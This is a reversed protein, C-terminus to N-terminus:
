GNHNLNFVISRDIDSQIRNFNKYDFGLAGLIYNALEDKFNGSSQPSNLKRNISSTFLDVAQIFFNNKSSVADFNELYLGTINQAKIREKLNELKLIDSGAEEDDIWVQLTRPLPARKTENEHLIGKSILHYTLDTIPISINQFGTNQVMIVKFGITPNLSLFKRFFDKYAQLRHRSCKTFHFEFNINKQKTWESLDRSIHLTSLGGDIIWVSGVILFNETKGAEDIFVSYVPLGVPKDELVENRKEAQLVGRYQKVTDDAQFLKYENQIKARVRILSNYCTLKKFQDLTIYQGNFSNSEFTRWYYWVLEIDSNRTIGYTNLIFAVKDRKTILNGSIVNDLLVKKEHVIKELRAPDGNSNYDGVKIDEKEKNEM